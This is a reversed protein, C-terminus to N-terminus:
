LPISPLISNHGKWGNNPATSKRHGTSNKNRANWNAITTPIAYFNKKQVSTTEREKDARLALSPVFTGIGDLKVSKGQGMQYALEEGLEQLLGVVDGKSFASKQALTKAIYDTDAQGRQVLRPYLVRKGDKNPLNMEQMEYEAM